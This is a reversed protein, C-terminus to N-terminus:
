LGPEQRDSPMELRVQAARLGDAYEGGDLIVAYGEPRDEARMEPLKRVGTVLGHLWHHQHESDRIVVRRGVMDGVQVEEADPAQVDQNYRRALEDRGGRNFEDSFPTGQWKDIGWDEADRINAVGDRYAENAKSNRTESMPVM